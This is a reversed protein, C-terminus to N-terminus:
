GSQENATVGAWNFSLSSTQFVGQEESNATRSALIDANAIRFRAITAVAPNIAFKHNM